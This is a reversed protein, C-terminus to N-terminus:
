SREGGSSWSVHLAPQRGTSYGGDDEVLVAKVLFGLRVLQDSIEELFVVARWREFRHLKVVAAMQGLQAEKRLVQLIEPMMEPVVRRRFALALTFFLAADMRETMASPRSPEPPLVDVDIRSTRKRGSM